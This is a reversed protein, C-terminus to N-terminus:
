LVPGSLCRAWWSEIEERVNGLCFLLKGGLRGGGEDGWGQYSTLFTLCFSLYSCLCMKQFFALRCSVHRSIEQQGEVPSMKEETQKVTPNM